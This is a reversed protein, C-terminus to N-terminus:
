SDVDGLDRLAEIIKPLQRTDGQNHAAAKASDLREKAQQREGRLIHVLGLHYAAAVHYRNVDRERAFELARFLMGAAEGLRDNKALVWGLTDMIDPNNPYARNAQEAYPLAEAANDMEEVLLYALNNLATPQKADLRLVAEYKEKAESHRGLAELSMAHSLMAYVGDVDRSALDAMRECAAVSEEYLGNIALLFVLARMRDLNTPDAEVQAKAHVLMDEKGLVAALKGVVQIYVGFDDGAADLAREYSDYCKRRDGVNSYARSLSSLAGPMKDLLQKSIKEEAFKVIERDRGAIEYASFLLPVTEEKYQSLAAAAEYGNIAKNRNGSREGLRGLLIPWIPQDPYKRMYIYTLNEAEAYRPPNVRQYNDILAQAVGIQEPHEDLISRLESVAEDGNGAEILADALSIRHQYDFGDPSFVKAKKLDEIAFHWRRMLIHLQGRQWLAKADDPYKELFADFAEKSKQIDGGLKHYAGDYVMGQADNPYRRTYDDIRGRVADLDGLSLMLGISWSRIAKARGSDLGETKLARELYELADEFRNTRTYYEASVLLVDPSPDLNVAMRFQRDATTLHNQAEYFRGFWAAIQAKKPVDEEEVLLRSFLEEGEAPRNVDARGFFEVAEKIVVMANDSKKLAEVYTEAADDYKHIEPIAYLGALFYLNKWDDPNERRIRERSVIGQEPNDKETLIQYQQKIAPDNPLYRAASALYKREAKEDDDQQAIWALRKYAVGNTPDITLASQFAHKAEPFQDAGLYANGLIVWGRSYSPYVDLGARISEIAEVYKGMAMLMRGRPVKGQTGDVNLAEHRQVYREARAWDEAEIAVGLQLIVINANEAQLQEAEDLFNMAEAYRKRARYFVALDRARSFPDDDERLWEELMEDRAASDKEEMVLFELSRYFRSGPDRERLQKVFARADAQRETMTYLRVMAKVAVQSDPDEDLVAKLKREAEDIRGEAFLIEAQQLDADTGSGALHELEKSAQDFQGLQKYAEARLRAAADNEDLYQRMGTLEVPKLLELAAAPRGLRLDIQALWIRLIPAEPRGRRYRAVRAAEVAKRASGWEKSRMYLRGLLRQLRYHHEAGPKDNAEEAETTAAIYESRASFLQANMYRVDISDEHMEEKLEEIWADAAELSEDREEDDADQKARTARDIEQLFLETMADVRLRNDRYSRFHQKHPIEELCRKYLAAEEERKDPTNYLRGLLRYTNGNAPAIELAERAIEEAKALDPEVQQPSVRGTYLGALLLHSDAGDTEEAVLTELSALGEESLGIEIKYLAHLRMFGPLKEPESDACSEIASTITEFISEKLTDAERLRGEDELRSASVWMQSTASELADLNTPDLTLARRLAEKGQKEYSDDDDQLALFAKGIGHHAVASQDDVELLRKAKELVRGWQLKGGLLGALEFELDTALELASKLQPDRVLAQEDLLKRATAINGDELACRAAMVFYEPNKAPDKGFARLYTRMARYYEGKAELERAEEEYVAPDQGPLNLLLIVLIVSLMVMGSLTLLGILNKNLRRAM